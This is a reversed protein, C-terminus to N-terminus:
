NNAALASAPPPGSPPKPTFKGGKSPGKKVETSKVPLDKKITDEDVAFQKAVFSVIGSPLRDMNMMSSLEDLSNVGPPLPPPALADNDGTSHNLGAEEASRKAALQQVHSPIAQSKTPQYVKIRPQERNKGINRAIQLLKENEEQGLMGGDTSDLLALQQQVVHNRNAESVTAALGGDAQSLVADRLQSPLGFQLDLICTQCVNKTRACIQCVETKKYGEGRGPKWKFIMYPRECMKCNGGARDVLMRVYPNEGLCGILVHSFLM